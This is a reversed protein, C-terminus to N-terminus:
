WKEDATPGYISPLPVDILRLYVSLQGRHHILHNLHQRVVAGRPMTMLVHEGHKLSWPVNLADGQVIMVPRRYGASSGIPDVLDPLVSSRDQLYAGSFYHNNDHHAYFAQYLYWTKLDYSYFHLKIHESDGQHGGFGVTSRCDHPFLFFYSVRIWKTKGDTPSWAGIGGGEPRVQFVIANLNHAVMVDLLDVLEQRQADAGGRDHEADDIGREQPRQRIM